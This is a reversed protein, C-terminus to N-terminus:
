LPPMVLDGDTVTALNGDADYTYSTSASPPSGCSGNVGLSVFCRIGGALYGYYAKHNDADTKLSRRPSRTSPADLGLATEPIKSM